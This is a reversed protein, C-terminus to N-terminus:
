GKGAAFINNIPIPLNPSKKNSMLNLYGNVKRPDPRSNKHTYNLMAVVLLAISVILQVAEYTSILAVESQSPVPAAVDKPKGTLYINQKWFYCNPPFLDSQFFSQM